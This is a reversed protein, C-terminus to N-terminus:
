STVTTTFNFLDKSWNGIYIALEGLGPSGIPRAAKAEAEDTTFHAQIRFPPHLKGFRFEFNGLM